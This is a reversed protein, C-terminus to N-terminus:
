YQPHWNINKYKKKRKHNKDKFYTIVEKRNKHSNIFSIESDLRKELRQELDNNELQAFPYVRPTEQEM